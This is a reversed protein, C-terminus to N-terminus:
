VPDQRLQALAITRWRTQTDHAIPRSTPYLRFLPEGDDYSSCQPFGNVYAASEWVSKGFCAHFLVTATRQLYVCLGNLANVREQTKHGKDQPHTLLLYLYREYREVPHNDGHM